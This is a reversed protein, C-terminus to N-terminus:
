LELTSHQLAGTLNQGARVEVNRYQVRIVAGNGILQYLWGKSKEKAERKDKFDPAEAAQLIASISKQTHTHGGSLTSAPAAECPVRLPERARSVRRKHRM